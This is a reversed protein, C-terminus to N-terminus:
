GAQRKCFVTVHHVSGDLDFKPMVPGDVQFVAARGEASGLDLSEPHESGDFVLEGSAKALLVAAAPPATLKWVESAVDTQTVPTEDSSYPRFHCGPVRVVSRSKAKLGGWGPEGSQSVAVVGVVQAGFSM